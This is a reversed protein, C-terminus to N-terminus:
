TMDFLGSYEYVGDRDMPCDEGMSGVIVVGVAREWGTWLSRGGINRGGTLRAIRTRSRDNKRFDMGIDAAVM